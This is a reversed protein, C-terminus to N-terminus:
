CAWIILVSLTQKRYVELGINDNKALMSLDNDKELTFQIKTKHMSYKLFVGLQRDTGYLYLFYRTQFVVNAM